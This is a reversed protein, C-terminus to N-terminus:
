PLDATASPPPSPCHAQTALVVVLQMPESGYNVIQFEAGPPVILTCPSAFRQPAGAVLLKGCGALVVVAQEGPHQTPASSAGPEITQVWAEFQTIGRAGDAACLRQVGSGHERPLNAHSIVVM